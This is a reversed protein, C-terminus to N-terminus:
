TIYIIKRYKIYIYIYMHKWAHVPLLAGSKCSGYNISNECFLTSTPWTQIVQIECAHDHLNHTYNTYQKHGNTPHISHWIGLQRGPKPRVAHNAQEPCIVQCINAVTRAASNSPDCDALTLFRPVTTFGVVPLDLRLLQISHVLVHGHSFNMCFRWSYGTAILQMWNSLRITRALAIVNTSSSTTSIAAQIGNNWLTSLYWDDLWCVDADGCTVTTRAQSSRPVGLNACHQSDHSHGPM